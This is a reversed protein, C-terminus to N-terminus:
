LIETTEINFRNKIEQSVIKRHCSSFDQCSCMLCFNVNEKILEELKEMGKKLDSIEIEKSNKYNINGLEQIHIYKVGLINELEKKQWFPSYSYPSYRIDVLISNLEELESVLNKRTVNNYGVTYIM